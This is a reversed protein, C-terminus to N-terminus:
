LPYIRVSPRVNLKDKDGVIEAMIIDACEENTFLRFPLKIKSIGTVLQQRLEDSSWGFEEGYEEQLYTEIKISIEDEHGCGSLLGLCLMSAIVGLLFKKYRM